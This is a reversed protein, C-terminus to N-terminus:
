VSMGFSNDVQIDQQKSKDPARSEISFEMAPFDKVLQELQGTAAKYTLGSYIPPDMASDRQFIAWNHGDEAFAKQEAPLYGVHEALHSFQNAHAQQYLYDEVKRNVANQMEEVHVFPPLYDTGIRDNAAMTHLTGAVQNHAEIQAAYRDFAADAPVHNKGIDIAWDAEIQHRMQELRNSVEYVVDERGAIREAHLHQDPTMGASQYPYVVEEAHQELRESQVRERRQLDHILDATGLEIQRPESMAPYTLKVAAVASYLDAEMGEYPGGNFRAIHEIASDMTTQNTGLGAITSRLSQPALDLLARKAEDSLFHGGTQPDATQMPAEVRSRDERDMRDEWRSKLRDWVGPM